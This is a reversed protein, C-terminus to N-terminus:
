RSLMWAHVVKSKKWNGDDYTYLTMEMMSVPLGNCMTLAQKMDARLYIESVFPTSFGTLNWNQLWAKRANRENTTLQTTDSPCPYDLFARRAQLLRDSITIGRTSKHHLTPRVCKWEFVQLVDLWEMIANTQLSEWYGQDHVVAYRLSDTLMFYRQDTIRLNLDANLVAIVAEEIETLDDGNSVLHESALGDLWERM